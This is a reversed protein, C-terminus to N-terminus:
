SHQLMRFAASAIWGAFAAIMLAMVGYVAPQRRSLTFLFRGLGEKRVNISTEFKSVVLGNRTLFIRIVYDGETLQAPMAVAARFLTQQDLLVEGELQQYLEQARRIRILADTFSASDLITQPAGVSRIARDVTIKHRLDETDNLVKALPGTTAVAYFVPALDVEVRDTNVWIGLENSKRRVEVPQSPGAVTIIVELPTEENIPKERRVAGFVLIESGDFGTTIAIRDKSLGLVVEEGWAPTALCIALAFLWRM